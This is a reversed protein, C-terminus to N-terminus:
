AITLADRLTSTGTSSIQGSTAAAHLAWQLTNTNDSSSYRHPSQNNATTVQIIKPAPVPTLNPFTEVLSLSPPASPNQLSLFQQRTYGPVPLQLAPYDSLRAVHAKWPSLHFCGSQEQTFQAPREHLSEVSSKNVNVPDFNGSSITTDYFTDTFVDTSFDIGTSGYLKGAVYANSPLPL